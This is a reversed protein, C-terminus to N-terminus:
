RQRVVARARYGPEVVKSVARFRGCNGGECGASTGGAQVAVSAFTPIRVTPTSARYEISPAAAIRAITVPTSPRAELRLTPPAEFRLTPSVTFPVEAAVEPAARVPRVSRTQIPREYTGDSLRVWGEDEPRYAAAAPAAHAANTVTVNGGRNAALAALLQDLKVDLRGVRDELAALRGATQDPDVALVPGALLLVLLVRM